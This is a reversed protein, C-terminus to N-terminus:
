GSGEDQIAKGRRPIPVVAGLFERLIVGHRSMNTAAPRMGGARQWRGRGGLRVEVDTPRAEALSEGECLGLIPGLTCQSGPKGTPDVRGPEAADPPDSRSTATPLFASRTTILPSGAARMSSM